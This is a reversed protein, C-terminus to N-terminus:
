PRLSIGMDQLSQEDFIDHILNDIFEQDPVEDDYDEDMMSEETLEEEDLTLDVIHIFDRDM